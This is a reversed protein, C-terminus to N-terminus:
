LRGEQAPGHGYRRPCISVNLAAEITVAVTHCVMAVPPEDRPRPSRRVIHEDRSSLLRATM